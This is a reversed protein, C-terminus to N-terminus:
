QPAPQATDDLHSRADPQDFSSAAVRESNSQFPLAVRPIVPSKPPEDLLLLPPLLELELEDLELEELELEELELLLPPLLELEELLELLLLLLELPPLLLPPLVGQALGM